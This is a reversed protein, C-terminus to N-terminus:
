PSIQMNVNCGVANVILLVCLIAYVLYYRFRCRQSLGVVTLAIYFLWGIVLCTISFGDPPNPLGPFAFAITGIPFMWVSMVFYPFLGPSGICAPISTAILAIVWAAVWLLVRRSKSIENTQAM